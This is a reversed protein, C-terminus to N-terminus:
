RRDPRLGLKSMAANVAILVFTIGVPVKPCEGSGGGLRPGRSSLMPVPRRPMCRDAFADGLRLQSIASPPEAGSSCVQKTAIAEQNDKPPNITSRPTPLLKNSLHNHVINTCSCKVSAGQNPVLQGSYRHWVIYSRYGTMRGETQLQVIM